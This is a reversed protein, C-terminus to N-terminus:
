PQLDKSGTLYHDGGFRYILESEPKTKWSNKDFNYVSEEVSAGLVKEVFFTHDGTTFHNELQCDITGLREKM